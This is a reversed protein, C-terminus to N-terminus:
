TGIRWEPEVWQSKWDLPESLAAIQGWEQYFANVISPDRSVIANELSSAANQTFNFSGTWVMYPQIIDGITWTEFDETELRCFVIFKHHMRPFAPKKESNYNGICRVPDILPDTACSMMHLRTGDVSLRNLRAPLEKYRQSLQHKWNHNDGLDPRLFDEKQVILSVGQTGALAKLIEPHTLWAVCGVIIQAERIYSVLYHELNRFHVWTLRNAGTISLDYLPESEEGDRGDTPIELQNLDNIQKLM